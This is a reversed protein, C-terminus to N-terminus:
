AQTLIIKGHAESPILDFQSLIRFLPRGFYFLELDLNLHLGKIAESRLALDKNVLGTLEALNNSHITGKQTMLLQALNELNCEKEHRLIYTNVPEHSAVIDFRNLLSKGAIAKLDATDWCKLLICEMPRHQYISCSFNTQDFFVCSWQGNNGKLKIIETTAWEVRSQELSSVPEGRRVTILSEREIFKQVLLNKDEIHLGPGGKMCCTGCRECETQLIPKSM